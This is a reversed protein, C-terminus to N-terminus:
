HHTGNVNQARVAPSRRASGGDARCSPEGHDAAVVIRSEKIKRVIVAPGHPQKNTEAGSGPGADLDIFHVADPACELVMDAIVLGPEVFPRAHALPDLHAPAALLCRPM